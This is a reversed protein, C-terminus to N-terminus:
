KKIQCLLCVNAVKLIQMKMHTVLTKKKQPLIKCFQLFLFPGAFPKQLKPSSNKKKQWIEVMTGVLLGSLGHIAQIGRRGFAIAV